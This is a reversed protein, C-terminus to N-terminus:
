RGTAPTRKYEVIVPTGNEDPGPPDIRGRHRGAPYESALFRIGLTTVPSGPTQPVHGECVHFAKPVNM